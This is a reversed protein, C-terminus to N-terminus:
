HNELFPFLRVLFGKKSNRIEWSHGCTYCDYSEGFHYDFFGEYVYEGTLIGKAVGRDFHYLYREGCNPCVINSLMKVIGDCVEVKYLENKM